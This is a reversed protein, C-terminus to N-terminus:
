LLLNVIKKMLVLVVVGWIDTKNGHEPFNTWEIVNNQQEKHLSSVM